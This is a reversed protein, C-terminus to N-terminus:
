LAEPPLFNDDLHVSVLRGTTSGASIDGDVGGEIRGDGGQQLLEFNAENPKQGDNTGQLANEM